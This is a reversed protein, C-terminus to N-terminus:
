AKLQEWLARYYHMVTIPDTSHPIEAMMYGQYDASKLLQFVTKWPYERTYLNNIHVHRIQRQLLNFYTEVSGNEDLDAMNCNWCASVQPHNAVQLIRHIYPPHCTGAGHVELWIEVGYGAAYEGCEKLANGIQQLTEEVPIGKDEHLHNPRVKVGAAGIDHALRVFEKTEEINKRVVSEEPSDYECASGLGVLRVRAGAFRARVQEREEPSMTPEVGHSHTTRLEVAGFGTEECRQIVTDLDWDHAMNYTVLGLHM